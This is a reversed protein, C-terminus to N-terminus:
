SLPVEIPVGASTHYEMGTRTGSPTYVNYAFMQKITARLVNQSKPLEAKNFRFSVVTAGGVSVFVSPKQHPIVQESNNAVKV